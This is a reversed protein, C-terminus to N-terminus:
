IYQTKKSLTGRKRGFQTLYILKTSCINTNQLNSHVNLFYERLLHAYKGVLYIIQGTNENAM